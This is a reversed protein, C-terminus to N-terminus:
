VNPDYISKQLSEWYDKSVNQSVTPNSYTVQVQRNASDLWASVIEITGDWEKITFMGLFHM